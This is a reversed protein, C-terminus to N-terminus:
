PTVQYFYKDVLNKEYYDYMSIVAPKLNDVDFEKSVPIEVCDSDDRRIGEFYVHLQQKSKRIMKKAQKPLKIDCCDVGFEDSTPLNIELIAMNSQELKEGVLQMCAKLNKRATANDSITFNLHFTDSLPELTNYQYSIQFTAKGSGTATFQLERTNKPLEVKKNIDKNKEGVTFTHVLQKHSYVDIDLTTGHEKYRAAYISLARLGVETEFTSAFGGNSNRKSVIWKIIPTVPKKLELMTILIYGTIYVDINAPTQGHQWWKHDGSTMAKAELIGLLEEVMPDKRLHLVYLSLATARMDSNQKVNNRIYGIADDIVKKHQDLYQTNELLTLVVSATVSLKNLTVFDYLSGDERFSGDAQQKSTLFALGNKLINEDVYIYSKAENFIRIVYATLWTNGPAKGWTSFSHDPVKYTLERQYGIQLYSKASDYIAKNTASTSQLYKLVMLNPVLHIMNQEGCGSPSTILQAFNEGNNILNLMSGMIFDMVSIEILESGLVINQPIKLQVSKSEEGNIYLDENKWETIGEHEVKLQKVIVDNEYISQATMKLTIMGVVKPRIKFKVTQTREPRVNVRVAHQKENPNLFFEFEDNLRELTITAPVNVRLYNFITAELEIIEGLKVSQPLKVTLFFKLFTRINTPTTTLTFGTKPNLSFGTLVWTTITDPIKQRMEDHGDESTFDVFAFTEFFNRRVIPKAGLQNVSGNDGIIGKDINYHTNTMTVLGATIGPLGHSGSITSNVNRLDDFITKADFDNGSKLLLVSKDVGLLGVYSNPETDINLNIYAGPKVVDPADISITNKFQNKVNFKTEYHIMRGNKFFYVFMHAEPMMEYTPTVSFTHAHNSGGNPVEIAETYVINGRGVIVCVFSSFAEPSVLRIEIADDVTPFQTKVYLGGEGGEKNHYLQIVGTSESNEYKITLNISVYNACEINVDVDGNNEAYTVLEDSILDDKTRMDLTLYVERDIPNGNKHSIRARYVFTEDEGNCEHVVDPTEIEFHSAVIKITKSIKRSTQTAGDLVDVTIPIVRLRGGLDRVNIPIDLEGEQLNYQKKLVNNRTVNFTLVCTGFIPKGFTYHAKVKILFTKDKLSVYNPMELDIEFLPLEYDKVEIIKETLMQQGLFVQMSWEGAVVQEALKLKGKYVGTNLVVDDFREIINNQADKLVISIQQNVKAPLLYQDLFVARFQITDGFKYLAKDTQLYVMPLNEVYELNTSNEFIIGSLGQAKLVYTGNTIDGFEFTVSQGSNPPVVVETNKSFEPGKLTLGIRANDQVEYVSVYISYKSNPRINGPSTISYYGEAQVEVIVAIVLGLIPLVGSINVM